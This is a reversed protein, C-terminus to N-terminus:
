PWTLLAVFGTKRGSKKGCCGEVATAVEAKIVMDGSIMDSSQPYFGSFTDPARFLHPPHSISRFDIIPNPRRDNQIRITRELNTFHNPRLFVFNM